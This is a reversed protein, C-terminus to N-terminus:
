QSSIWHKVANEANGGGCDGVSGPLVMILAPQAPQYYTITVGEVFSNDSGGEPEPGPTRWSSEYYAQCLTIIRGQQEDFIITLDRQQESRYPQIDQNESPKAKAFIVLYNDVLEIPQNFDYSYLIDQWEEPTKLRYIQDLFLKNEFLSTKTQPPLQDPQLGAWSKWGDPGQQAWSIKASTVAGFAIMVM